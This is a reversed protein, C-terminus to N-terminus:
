KQTIIRDKIGIYKFSPVIANFIKPVPSCYIKLSLKVSHASWIYTSSCNFVGSGFSQLIIIMGSPLSSFLILNINLLYICLRSPINALRVLIVSTSKVFKSLVETRIIRLINKLHVENVEILNFLKFVAETTSICDINKSQEEKVSNSKDEKSVDM